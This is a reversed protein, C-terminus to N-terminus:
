PSLLGRLLSHGSHATNGDYPEASIDVLRYDKLDVTSPLPLLVDSQGGLVGISFMEKTDPDILWVEYYGPSAPLNTVHLHLQAQGHEDLVRASGHATAPTTGYASLDARATVEPTDPRDTLRIVGVTGVVGILAAAIAVLATRVWRRGTPRPETATGTATGTAIGTPVDDPLTVTPAGIGTGALIAEWVRAPPAPLDRVERAERGVGVVAVLGDLETHCPPCENLHDGEAGTPQQEGLALLVLRESDLHPM